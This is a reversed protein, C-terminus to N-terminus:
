SGLTNNKKKSEEYREIQEKIKFEDVGKEILYPLTWKNNKIFQITKDSYNNVSYVNIFLWTKQLKLYQEKNLISNLIDNKGTFKLAKIFAKNQSYEKLRNLDVGKNYVSILYDINNKGDLISNSRIQTEFDSKSVTEKATIKPTGSKTLNEELEEPKFIVHAMEWKADTTTIGRFFALDNFTLKTIQEPTKMITHYLFVEVNLLM